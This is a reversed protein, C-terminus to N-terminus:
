MPYVLEPWDLASDIPGIVARAREFQTMYASAFVARSLAVARDLVAHELRAGRVYLLAAAERSALRDIDKYGGILSLRTAMWHLQQWIESKSPSINERVFRVEPEDAALQTRWIEYSAVNQNKRADDRGLDSSTHLPMRDPSHQGTPEATYGEPDRAFFEPALAVTAATNCTTNLM